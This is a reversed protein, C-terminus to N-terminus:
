KGQCLELARCAAAESLDPWLDQLEAVQLLLLLLCLTRLVATELFTPLV